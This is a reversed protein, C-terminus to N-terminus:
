LPLQKVLYSAPYTRQGSWNWGPPFIGFVTSGSGSMCAYEAGMEYMDKKVQGIEPCKMFVSPEFDNSLQQKWSSVPMNLANWPKFQSPHPTLGAYAEATSVGFPPKILLLQYDQDHMRKLEPSDFPTLLEGRGEGRTPGDYMFLACDSGLHSAYRILESQSLNLHFLGNLAKLMGAANSSGGGLGAGLPLNKHLYVHVGPLDFDKQLLRYAKVCLHKEFEVDVEIGYPKLTIDKGPSPVVELIDKWDLPFFVTELNHFGDSRRETVNLGLNIKAPTYLIM